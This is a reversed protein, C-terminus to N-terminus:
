LRRRQQLKGNATGPSRRTEGQRRTEKDQRGGAEEDAQDEAAVDVALAAEHVEGAPEAAAVPVPEDAEV